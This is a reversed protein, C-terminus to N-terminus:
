ADLVIKIFEDEKQRMLSKEEENADGQGLLHIVGHSCVRIFETNLSEGLKKANDEIRDKSMFIDGSVVNGENYNFTIIDTYYDHELYKRNLDLLFEDSCYIFNIDGAKKGSKECVM